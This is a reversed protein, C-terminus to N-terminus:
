LYLSLYLPLHKQINEVFVAGQKDTKDELYQFLDKFMRSAAGSAPVFKVLKLGKTLANYEQRIAELPLDDFRIIGDSVTAPRELQTLVFGKAYYSFLRNIAAIDRNQSKLINLDESTFM